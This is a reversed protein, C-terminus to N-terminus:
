TGQGGIGLNRSILVRYWDFGTLKQPPGHEFSPAEALLASIADIPGTLFGRAFLDAAVANM